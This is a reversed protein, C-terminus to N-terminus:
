KDARRSLSDWVAVSGGVRLAEALRGELSGTIAVVRAMAISDIKEDMMLVLTANTQTLTGNRYFLGLAALSAVLAWAVSGWTIWAGVDVSYWAVKPDIHSM